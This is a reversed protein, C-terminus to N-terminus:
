DILNVTIDTEMEERWGFSVPNEIRYIEAYKILLYCMTRAQESSVIGRQLDYIYSALLRRADKVKTIRRPKIKSDEQKILLKKVKAKV